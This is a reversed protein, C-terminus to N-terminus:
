LGAEIMVQRLLKEADFYESAIEKAAQSHRSYDCNIIEIARPIDELKQFACLGLGTPISKSFGTEQTIVPKGAALYCASRESFWGSRLRVNMDKAVTLEGRSGWIYARYSELTESIQYADEVRWGYGELMQVAAPDDIALALSFEQTTRGPLELIKLFERHKSWSYREGNYELDKVSQDWHGITTFYRAAPNCPSEWCDLLVPPRIPKYEFSGLPVGCDSAGYNAGWTFLATHAAVLDIYRQEGNAIRLQHVVPDTELYIRIPCRMHEDRLITGGFLNIIADARTYLDKLQLESLGYCRNDSHAAVYAWKGEFGFRNLLNSIYTVPFTCDDTTANFPWVATAEVYYVDYGLRRLAILHQLTNWAVGTGAVPLCGMIGLVVVVKPKVAHVRDRKSEVREFSRNVPPLMAARDVAEPLATAGRRHSLPPIDIGPTRKRVPRDAAVM